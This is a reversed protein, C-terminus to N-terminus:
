GRGAGREIAVIEVVLVEGNTALEARMSLGETMDSGAFGDVAISLEVGNTVLESATEDTVTVKFVPVLENVDLGTCGIGETSEDIETSGLWGATEDMESSVGAGGPTLLLAEMTDGSEPTKLATGVRDDDSNDGKKGLTLPLVKM